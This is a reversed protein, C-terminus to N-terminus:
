FRIARRTTRTPSTRAAAGGITSAQSTLQADYYQNYTYTYVEGGLDTHTLIHNFYDYSM